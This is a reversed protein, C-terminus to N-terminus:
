VTEGRGSGPRISTWGRRSAAMSTTIIGSAAGRQASRITMLALLTAWVTMWTTVSAFAIANFLLVGIAALATRWFEAVPLTDRTYTIRTVWILYGVTAAFAIAAAAIVTTVVTKTPYNAILVAVGAPGGVIAVAQAARSLLGTTTNYASASRPTTTDM